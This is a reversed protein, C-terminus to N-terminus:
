QTSVTQIAVQNESKSLLLYVRRAGTVKNAVKLALEGKGTYLDLRAGGRIADGRDQSFLLRWRYGKVIGKHDVEPMEALLVSGFPIFNTDVAITHGAILSMGSATNSAKTSEEFFVYRPNKALVENLYEPHANLFVTIARRSLDTDLYGRKKMYQAISKFRKGNSATYRLLKKGENPFQLVGSGQVHIYFLSIPDKVWGIELGSGNLAGRNIEGRSLLRYKGYPKKYIPYRYEHDPVRRASLIPTYYGTVHVPKGSYNKLDVLSFGQGLNDGSDLWKLLAQASNLLQKNVLGVGSKAVRQYSKKKQLFKIQSLLGKRTADDKRVCKNDLSSLGNSMKCDSTPEVSKEIFQSWTHDSEVQEYRSYFGQDNASVVPTIAFFIGSALLGAITQKLM